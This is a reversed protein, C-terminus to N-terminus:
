AVRASAPDLLRHVDSLLADLRGTESAVADTGRSHVARAWELASTAAESTKRLRERIEAEVERRSERVREALDGAVRSANVTLLDLLYAEARRQRRRRRLSAPVVADILGPWPSRPYHYGMRDSFAFHRAIRFSESRPPGAGGDEIEVGAAMSLADLVDEASSAFRRLASRYDGEAEREARELWPFVLDRAVQNAFELSEARPAQAFRGTSWGTRVMALGQLRAEGLFEESRHVFLDSLRQEEAAFLPRLDRLARDVDGRLRVLERVRQESGEVPRLLANRREGLNLALSRAIRAEGRRRMAGVLDGRRHEALSRLAEGLALWDPGGGGHIATVAYLRDDTRGLRDALVARIFDVALQREVESVRDVKNVVFLLTSVEAAIAEVLRLEEGAIPPDAGLVVLAADLHPLFGRTAASNAEHVSGLGPTDVLSLGGELIPAPVTVEVALVGKRNSPNRAETVFEALEEPPIATWGARTRVRAAPEGYRLVTPVSTVPPVGAPLLDRGILANLLTSKGRKFQGVCAVHFRREETRAALAEAEAVLEADGAAVALAVLAGPATDKLSPSELGGPGGQVATVVRNWPVEIKESAFRREQLTKSARFEDSRHIVHGKVSAFEPYDEILDTKLLEGGPVSRDLVLADLMGRGAPGAGSIILDHTSRPM